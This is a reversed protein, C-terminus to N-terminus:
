RARNEDSAPAPPRPRRSSYRSRRDVGLRHGAVGSQEARGLLIQDLRHASLPHMQRSERARDVRKRGRDAKEVIKDTRLGVAVGEIQLLAADERDHVAHARQRQLLAEGLGAGRRADGPEGFQSREFGLERAFQGLREAIEHGHPEVRLDRLLGRGAEHPRPSSDVISRSTRRSAKWTAFLSRSITRRWKLRAINQHQERDLPANVSVQQAIRSEAEQELSGGGPSATAISQSVVPSSVRRSSMTLTAATGM